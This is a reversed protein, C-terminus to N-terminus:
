RRRVALLILVAVLALGAGCGFAVISGFQEDLAGFILSAPLASPGIACSYWGFALAAM